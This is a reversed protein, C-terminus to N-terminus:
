ATNRRIALPLFSLHCGFGFVDPFLGLVVRKTQERRKGYPDQGLLRPSCWWKRGDEFALRKSVNFMRGVRVQGLKGDLMTMDTRGQRYNVQSISGEVNTPRNLTREAWSFSNLFLGYVSVELRSASLLRCCADLLM